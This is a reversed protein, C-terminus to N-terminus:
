PDCHVMRVPQTFLCKQACPVSTDRVQVETKNMAKFCDDVSRETMLLNMKDHAARAESVDKDFKALKSEARALERIASSKRATTAQLDTFILM